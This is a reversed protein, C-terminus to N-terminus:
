ENDIVFKVGVIKVVSRHKKAGNYSIGNIKAYNPITQLNLYMASLEILQVLSDNDLEGSEFKRGLFDLLKATNLQIESM